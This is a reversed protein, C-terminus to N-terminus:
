KEEEMKSSIKEKSRYYTVKAWNETKGFLKGIDRFSVEGFIRLTFVEKYPDPMNHLIQHIRMVNEKNVFHEELYLPDEIEPVEEESVFRKQKNYENIYTNKAIQCLWSSMSCKGKFQNIHIMAKYFVVQTLEEAKHQNM